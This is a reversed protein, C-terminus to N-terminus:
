LTKPPNRGIVPYQNVDAVAGTFMRSEDSIWFVAAGAVEEPTILRGFPILEEPLRAPWDEPLGDAVKQRQENETLVWGPNIQNVRVRDPGLADALNRTMTMLGGKSISYALLIREGCYANVSGINLVAGQTAKLHPHAARILLLPARLNVGIIRDFVQGTTTQLDSRAVTAANNVLADIRGFTEVTFKVLDEATGPDALDCCYHAAQPSLSDAVRRAVLPELGHIIVRAGEAVCRRAIAKGIGTASGTVLVVKDKLRM